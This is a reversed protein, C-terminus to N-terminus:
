MYGGHHSGRVIGGIFTLADVDLQFVARLKDILKEVLLPVVTEKLLPAFHPASVDLDKGDVLIAHSLYGHHVGPM